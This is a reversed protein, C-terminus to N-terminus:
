LSYFRFSLKCRSDQVKAKVERGLELHAYGHEESRSFDRRQLVWWQHLLHSHSAFEHVLQVLLVELGCIIPAARATSGSFAKVVALYKRCFHRPTSALM